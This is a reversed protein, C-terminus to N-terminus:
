LQGTYFAARFTFATIYETYSHLLEETRLLKETYLSRQGREGERERERDRGREKRKQGERDKRDDGEYKCMNNNRDSQKDRRTHECHTYM